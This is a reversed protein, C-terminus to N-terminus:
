RKPSAAPAAEEVQDAADADRRQLAPAPDAPHASVAPPRRRWVAWAEVLFTMATWATLVALPWALLRPAIFGITAVVALLVGVALIPLLEFDEIPRNGSIAAGISRGVGTVTRVVRRSSRHRRAPPAAGTRRQRWAVSPSYTSLVIETSRTLDEEYHRELTQAVTPDEIAVDMEWNGMWSNLNLNTSGVRAWRSDAVATKAHIMTGQWEFIRVGAELLPRYLSRSVSVTWGVDSGQPLLLRVDVGDAAARKLAELYPGTGIFYADAIWLTRRALTAVFLDLRLMNATFPETPILRLHVDGAPEPIENSASLCEARSGGALRWSEAFADEAKAVIPGTMQLGTDRWPERGRDPRGQWVEGMCLGSVFAVRGDVVILKRHNRRIWGLASMVSPPNFARVHGGAEVLPAFLGFLPALGCGFWDYLVRVEVGQRAREALLRVFRRGVSDRRVIYMELHITRRAGSIAAEWAPYNETADRLVGVANGGVLPAGATRSFAQEALTRM